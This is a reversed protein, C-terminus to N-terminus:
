GHRGVDFGALERVVTEQFVAKAAGRLLDLEQDRDARQEAADDLLAAELGFGLLLEM